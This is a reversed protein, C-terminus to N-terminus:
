SELGNVQEILAKIFSRYAEEDVKLQIYFNHHTEQTPMVYWIGKKVASLGTYDEKPHAFPATASITNVRGDTAIWQKGKRGHFLNLFYVPLKYNDPTCPLPTHWLGGFHAKTTQAPQSFYYVTEQPPKEKMFRKMSRCGLDAYCSDKGMCYRFLAVPRYPVKETDNFFGLHDLNLSAARSEPTGSARHYELMENFFGLRVIPSLSDVLTTGNLPSALTYICHVWDENGGLFLPSLDSAKTAKREERSGKELLDLLLLITPGGFSHGVLNVKKILGDPGIQGWDPILGPYTRGYRAHHYKKAHAKGYDVTGGLLMAYLECARDWASAYPSIHPAVAELGMEEAVAKAPAMTEFWNNFGHVFVFPYRSM